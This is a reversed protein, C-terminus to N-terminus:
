RASLYSFFNTAYFLFFISILLNICNAAVIEAGFLSLSTIFFYQIIIKIFINDFWFYIKSLIRIFIFLFLPAFVGFLITFFGFLTYPQTNLSKVLSVADFDSMLNAKAIVVYFLQSSPAYADIFPTGPAILNIFNKAVYTILNLATSIEYSNLIFSHFVLLFQDLGGWALRYIIGNLLEFINSWDIYFLERILLDITPDVGGAYLLRASHAMMYLAPSLIAIIFIYRPKIIFVQACRYDISLGFPCLLLVIFVVLPAAKSGAYFNVIVFLIFILSLYLNNKNYNIAIKSNKFIFITGALLLYAQDSFLFPIISFSREEGLFKKTILGANEDLTVFATIIGVGFLYLSNIKKFYFMPLDIQKSKSFSLALWISVWCALLYFIGLYLNDFYYIQSFPLPGVSQGIIYNSGSAVIFVLPVELFLLTFFCLSISFPNERFERKYGLLTVALIFFTASIATLTNDFFILPLALVLLFLFGCAGYLGFFIDRLKGSDCSEILM